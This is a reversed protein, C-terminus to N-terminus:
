YCEARDDRIQLFPTVKEWHEEKKKIEEKEEFEQPKERKEKSKKRSFDREKKGVTTWGDSSSM